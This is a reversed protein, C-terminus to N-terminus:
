EEGNEEGKLYKKVASDTAKKSRANIQEDKKCIGLFPCYSCTSGMGIKIPLLPFEGNEISLLANQAMQKAYDCVREIQKESLGNKKNPKGNKLPLDIVEGGNLLAGMEMASINEDSEEFVGNLKSNSMDESWSTTFPFYFFGGAKYGNQMAVAMYLPLQLKTGYYLDSYNFSGGSGTKYDIVRVRDQWEDIRDIAGKLNIEGKKGNFAITKLKSDDKGFSEECYKVSYLSKELQKYAITCVKVAEVKLREVISANAELSSKPNDALHKTVIELVTQEIPEKDEKLLFESITAHMINGVDLPSVRGDDNEELRLVYRCFYMFPCSYYTQLASVSTTNPSYEVGSNQPLFEYNEKEIEGSAKILSASLTDSSIVSLLEKGNEKNAILYAFENEDVCNNIAQIYNKISSNKEVRYQRELLQLDYSKKGNEGCVYSAFVDSENQLLQWLEDRYRNNLTSIKSEFNFGFQEMEVIDSDSLLAVDEETKPLIGENFSLLYIKSFEQGRFDNLTGIKVVGTTQQVVSFETSVLLDRLSDLVFDSSIIGNGYISLLFDLSSCILEKARDFEISTPSTFPQAFDLLGKCCNVFSVVSVSSRIDGVIQLAKAIKKRMIEAQEKYESEREFASLFGKYEILNENTYHAFADREIKSASIAPSKSLAIVDERKLGKRECNLVSLLFIALPHSALSDKKSIYFPIAFDSFIRKVTDYSLNEGAIIIKDPSIGDYLDRSICRAVTKLQDIDDKAKYVQVKNAKSKMEVSNATFITVGNSKEDIARLLADTPAPLVDFNIVYYFKNQKSSLASFYEILKERKGVTDVRKGNTRELYEQYILKIDNIKNKKLSEAKMEEPKKGQDRLRSITEYMKKAFGTKAYSNKFCTLSSSIDYAIKKILLIAGAKSIVDSNDCYDSFLRSITKVQISFSGKGQGYVMKEFALSYVEPVIIVHECDPNEEVNKILKLLEQTAKIYSEYILEKM